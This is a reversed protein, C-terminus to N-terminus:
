KHNGDRPAPATAVVPASRTAPRLLAEALTLVTEELSALRTATDQQAATMVKSILDEIDAHAPRSRLEEALPELTGTLREDLADLQAGLEVSAQSTLETLRHVDRIGLTAPLHSIQQNVTDLREGVADIHDGLAEIRGDIGSFHGGVAELRGDVAEFKAGMGDIRGGVGELRGDLGELRGDLAGLKHDVASVSSDVVGIRDSHDGIREDLHDIHNILASVEEGTSSLRADLAGLRDDIPATYEGIAAIRGDVSDFRENILGIRDDTDGIRDGLRDIRNALAGVREGTVSLTADLGGLKNDMAGIRDDTDGLREDLRELRGHAVQVQGGVLDVQGTLTTVSGALADIKAAVGQLGQEVVASVTAMGQELKAAQATFGQDLRGKVASMEKDLYGARQSLEALAKDLRGFRGAAAEMSQQLRVDNHQLKALREEQIRLTEKAQSIMDCAAQLRPLAQEVNESVVGLDAWLAPLEAVPRVQAAVVNIQEALSDAWAPPKERADALQGPLGEAQATVQAGLDALERQRAQGTEKVLWELGELHKRIEELASAHSRQDSVHDQVTRALLERMRDAAGPQSGRLLIHNASQDM